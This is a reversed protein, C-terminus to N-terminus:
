RDRGQEQERAKDEHTTSQEPSNVEGYLIRGVADQLGNHMSDIAFGSVQGGINALKAAIGDFRNPAEATEPQAPSQKSLAELSRTVEEDHMPTDRM